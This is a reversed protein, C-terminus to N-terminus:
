AAGDIKDEGYVFSIQKCLSADETFPSKSKESLPRIEMERIFSDVVVIKSRFWVINRM